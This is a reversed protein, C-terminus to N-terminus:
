AQMLPKYKAIVREAGAKIHDDFHEAIRRLSEEIKSPGFFNYEVWPIRVEGGHPSIYNMSRYCHLVNLKAKPTAELEAISGDGSWQAVVRLGM